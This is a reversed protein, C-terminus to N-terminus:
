AESSWLGHLNCYEFATIPEGNDQIKFVAVPEEGPKLAKRQTLAGQSVIIWQISHEELMPHQVSGITVTVTDGDKEIVPVHKELSADVTNAEISEMPTGCCVPVVGSDNIVGFMNGCTNCRYFKKNSM